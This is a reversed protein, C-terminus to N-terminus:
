GGSVAAGASAGAAGSAEEALGRVVFSVFLLLGPEVQASDDVAVKVPRRGWSKGELVAVERGGDALAYRERWRSAPRLEFARGIWCLRGGRPLGRPEFTGAVAGAGDTAEIRRRRLGRRAIRWRAAGSAATATRSAFGHLRLTGVGELAYVRRDGATRTLELDAM